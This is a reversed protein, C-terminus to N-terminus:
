EGTQPCRGGNDSSVDDSSDARPIVVSWRAPRGAAKTAGNHVKGLAFLRRVAGPTAGVKAAIEEATMADPPPDLRRWPDAWLEVIRASLRLRAELEHSLHLEMGLHM